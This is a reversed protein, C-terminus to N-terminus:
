IIYETNRVFLNRQSVVFPVWLQSLPYFILSYSIPFSLIFMLFWKSFFTLNLLLCHSISVYLCFCLSMLSLSLPVSRPLSVSPCFCLNVSPSFCHSFYLSVCVSMSVSLCLSWLSLSATLCHCLFFAILVQRPNSPRTGSSVDPGLLFTHYHAKASYHQVTPLHFSTGAAPCGELTNLCIRSFSHSAICM